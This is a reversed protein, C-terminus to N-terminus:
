QSLSAIGLSKIQNSAASQITKKKKKELTRPSKYNKELTRPTAHALLSPLCDVMKKEM